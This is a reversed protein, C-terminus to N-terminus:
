LVVIRACRSSNLKRLSQALGRRALRDCALLEHPRFNLAAGRRPIWIQQRRLFTTRLRGLARRRAARTPEGAQRACARRADHPCRRDPHLASRSAGPDCGNRRRAGSRRRASTRTSSRKRLRIAKPTVEVLEDDQIYAIAQELTMRKPPTLRIGRGQAPRPLQHAAQGEPRQGRPGAAPTRASSWAEYLKEGPAIFLIGREELNLRTPSRRAREMSILVGNQRGQIPGKYAGYREFLRNMIGTGRTDSLFEGHYGILGRAPASFTLRRRAAARPRMDTM